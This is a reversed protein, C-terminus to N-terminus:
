RYFGRSSEITSFRQRKTTESIMMREMRDHIAQMARELEEDNESTTSKATFISKFMKSEGKLGTSGTHHM